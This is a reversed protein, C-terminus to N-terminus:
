NNITILIFIAGVKTRSSFYIVRALWRNELKTLLNTFVESVLTQVYTKAQTLNRCRMVCTSNEKATFKTTDGRSEKRQQSIAQTSMGCSIQIKGGNIKMCWTQAFVSYWTRSSQQLELKDMQMAINTWIGRWKNMHQTHAARLKRGSMTLRIKLKRIGIEVSAICM